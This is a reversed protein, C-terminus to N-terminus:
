LCMFGNKLTWSWIYGTDLNLILLYAQIQLWYKPPIADFTMIPWVKESSPNWHTKVEVLIQKGDWHNLIYDPTGTLWPHDRHAIMGPVYGSLGRKSRIYELRFETLAPNEFERGLFLYNKTLENTNALLETKNVKSRCLAMRLITNCGMIMSIDTGTVCEYRKNKWDDGSRENM